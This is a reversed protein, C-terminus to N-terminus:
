ISFSIHLGWVSSLPCDASGFLRAPTLFLCVLEFFGVQKRFKPNGCLCVFKTECFTQEVLARTSDEPLGLLQLLRVALMISHKEAPQSCQPGYSRARIANLCEKGHKAHTKYDYVAKCSKCGFMTVVKELLERDSVGSTNPALLERHTSRFSDAMASYTPALERDAWIVLEDHISSFREPTVPTQYNDESLLKQVQPARRLASSDLFPKYQEMLPASCEAFEQQRTEVNRKHIQGEIEKEVSRFIALLRPFVNEDWDLLFIHFHTSLRVFPFRVNIVGTVSAWSFRM